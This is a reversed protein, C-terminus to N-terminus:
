GVVVTTTGGDSITYHGAADPVTSNINNLTFHYYDDMVINESAANVTFTGDAHSIVEIADGFDMLEFLETPDPLRPDESAGYLIGELQTVIDPSMGRTDIVFHATPRYGALKVPTMVIDFDFSAPEVNEGLTRRQRTGVSAMCNYVLHIQYGFMDGRTGSGVLTRYTLDFRKPKQNDVLLGDTAEVIGICKGIEDPWYIATLKGSFDSADADALYIVGDRYYVTTAGSAGEDFGQLGNWVVAGDPTYAAGRDLGHQYYRQDPDDWKLM